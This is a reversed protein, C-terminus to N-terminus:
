TWTGPGARQVLQYAPTIGAGSRVRFVWSTFGQEVMARAVQDAARRDTAVELRLDDQVVVGGQRVLRRGQVEFREDAMDRGGHRHRIKSIWLEARKLVTRSPPQGDFGDVEVNALPGRSAAVM